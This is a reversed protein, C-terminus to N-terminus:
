MKGHLAGGMLVYQADQVVLGHSRLRASTVNQPPYNWATPGTRHMTPHPAADGAEAWCIGATSGGRLQSLWFRRCVDGATEKAPSIVGTPQMLDGKLSM